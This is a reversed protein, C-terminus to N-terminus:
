RAPPPRMDRRRARARQVQASLSRVVAGRPAVLDANARAAELLDVRVHPAFAVIPVHRLSSQADRLQAPLEPFATLDIVAVADPVDALSALLLEASSVRRVDLGEALELRSATMLDRCALLM